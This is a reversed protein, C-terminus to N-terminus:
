SRKRQHDSFSDIDKKFIAYIVCWRDQDLEGFITYPKYTDSSITNGKNYHGDLANVDIKIDSFIGPVEKASSKDKKPSMVFSITQEQTTSHRALPSQEVHLWVPTGSLGGKRVEQNHAGKFVPAM